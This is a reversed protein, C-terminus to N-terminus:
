GFMAQFVQEINPTRDTLAHELFKCAAELKDDPADRWEGEWGVHKSVLADLAVLTRQRPTVGETTGLALWESQLRALRECLAHLSRDVAEPPRAAPSAGADTSRTIEVTVAVVKATLNYPTNTKPYSKM